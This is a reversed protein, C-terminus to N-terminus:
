AKVHVEKSQFSQPQDLFQIRIRANTRLGQNLRGQFYAKEQRTQLNRGIGYTKNKNGGTFYGNIHNIGVSM